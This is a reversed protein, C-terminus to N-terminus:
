VEELDRKYLYLVMAALKKLFAKASALDTVNADIYTNLQALTLNKIHSPDFDDIGRLRWTKVADAIMTRALTENLGIPLEVNIESSEVNRSINVSYGAAAFVAHVTALAERDITIRM